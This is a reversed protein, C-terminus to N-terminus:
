PKIRRYCIQRRMYTYTIHLEGDKAVMAPYSFEATNEDPHQSKDVMPDDKLDELVAFDEFTQGNDDSVKIVLPTREGWNKAVPNLALYLKGDLQAADIGSNNSPLGTNYASCWTRSGDGSDSRFIKGCTTRLLAHIKGPASEWLTPQIAGEGAIVNDGADAGFPATKIPIPASISFTAGFDMSIDIRPRWETATETSCPALMTGDALYLPKCRVPGAQDDVGECAAPESWTRGGDMSVSTMSKWEHIERGKKFIIRAGGPIPMLVPNWHAMDDMKAICVPKEWAGGVRRSLWIGVDDAKEKLGAFYAALVTGDDLPLVTSAHCSPFHAGEEFLFERIIEM